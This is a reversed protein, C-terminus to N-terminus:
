MPRWGRVIRGVHGSSIEYKDATKPRGIKAASILIEQINKDTLKRRVKSQTLRTEYTIIRNRNSESIANIHSESRNKASESMRKRSELSKPKGKQWTSM